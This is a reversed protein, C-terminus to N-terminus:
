ALDFKLFDALGEIMNAGQPVEPDPFGLEQWRSRLALLRHEEWTGLLSGFWPEEWLLVHLFGASPSHSKDSESPAAIASSGSQCGCEPDSAIAACLSSASETPMPTEMGSSAYM